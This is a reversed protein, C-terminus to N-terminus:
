FLPLHYILMEQWGKKQFKGALGLDMLRDCIKLKVKYLKTQTELLCVKTKPNGMSVLSMKYLKNANKLTM